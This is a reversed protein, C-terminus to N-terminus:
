QDDSYIILYEPNKLSKKLSDIRFHDKYYTISQSIYQFSNNLNKTEAINGMILIGNSHFIISEAWYGSITNIPSVYINPTKHLKYYGPTLYTQNSYIFINPYTVKTLINLGDNSYYYKYEYKPFFVQYLIFLFIFIGLTLIIKKM